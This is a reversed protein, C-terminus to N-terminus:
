LVSGQFFNTIKEAIDKNMEVLSKKNSLHIDATFFVVIFGHVSSYFTFLKEKIYNHVITGLNRELENLTQQVRSLDKL